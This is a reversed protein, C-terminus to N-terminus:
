RPEESVDDWLASLDIAEADFPEAQVITSDAHSALIVWRGAELRLVELTRQEPDVLWCHRVGARAYIPLKKLRDLRRTSPSLVECVWVSPLTFFATDPLTPLRDRRWAALDPVLVDADLHSEPEVLIWWGGPGGRRGRYKPRIEAILGATADAHRPAPRPAVHLEGDVLEGVVHSPLALLDAYTATRRARSPDGM